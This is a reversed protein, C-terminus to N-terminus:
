DYHSDCLIVGNEDNTIAPYYMGIGTCMESPFRLPGSETNNYNCTVRLKEGAAVSMPDAPDFVTIPPADRYDPRWDEVSWVTEKVGDVERDIQFSEGWDHMHGFMVVFDMEEDVECWMSRSHRGVPSDVLNDNLIFYSAEVTEPGREVVKMDAVDATIADKDGVNVYHSQMVLTVGVPVKVVFNEPLTFPYSLEEGRLTTDPLVAPRLNTM